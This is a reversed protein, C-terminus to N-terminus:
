VQFTMAEMRISPPFQLQLIAGTKEELIRTIVDLNNELTESVFHTRRGNNSFRYSGATPMGEQRQVNATAFAAGLASKEDLGKHMFFTVLGQIYKSKGGRGNRGSYPIKGSPVGVEVIIGYDLSTMQGVVVASGRSFVQYQISNYLAGTNYHGQEKLEGQLEKQIHLLASEMGSKIAAATSM